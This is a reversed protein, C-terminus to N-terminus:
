RRKRGGVMRGALIWNLRVTSSKSESMVYGLWLWQVVGSGEAARSGAFSMQNSSVYWRVFTVPAENENPKLPSEKEELWCM